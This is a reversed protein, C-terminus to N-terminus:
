GSLLSLIKNIREEIEFQNRHSASAASYTVLRSKDNKFFLIAERIESVDLPNIRISNDNFIIADNFAQNSSIIPLGCCTAEIIANCCGERTTPLVFIDAAQMYIPIKDHPVSGIFFINDSSPRQPGEGLYICKVGEIGQTAKEVRLPGKTEIFSGVFLVIFDDIPIQLKERAKKKDGICFL